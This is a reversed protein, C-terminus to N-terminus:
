FQAIKRIVEMVVNPDGNDVNFNEGYIQNNTRVAGKEISISVVGIGRSRVKAVAAATSKIDPGRRAAPQGDSIVILTKKNRASTFRKSAELIAIEDDNNSLYMDANRFFHVFRQKVSAFPESFGKFRYLMTSAFEETVYHDAAHGYVAVSHRASELSSAAAYSAELAKWINRGSTMSGSCDVLILIEQPGIGQEVIKTSFLKNDTAIRSVSRIHRGHNSPPTWYTATESHAKLLKAFELYRTDIVMKSSSPSSSSNATAIVDEEHPVIEILGGVGEGVSCMVMTSDIEITEDLKEIQESTLTEEGDIEGAASQEEQTSEDTNELLLKYVEHAIHPRLERDHEDMTSLALKAITIHEPALKKLLYRAEPNKMSILVKIFNASTPEVLFDSVHGHAKGVSFFYAFREKYTWEYQSMTKLFVDDIYYDECINNITAFLQQNVVGLEKAIQEVKRSTYIFHMSEHFVMGFITSLASEEDASANPRKSSDANLINLGIFVKMNELDIVATDVDTTLFFQPSVDLTKGATISFASVMSTAFAKMQSQERFRPIRLGKYWTTLNMM